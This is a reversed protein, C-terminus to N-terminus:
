SPVAIELDRVVQMASKAIDTLHEPEIATVAILVNGGNPLDLVVYRFQEGKAVANYIWLNNEDFHGVLPVVPAKPDDWWPCSGKWDPSIAIDIQQGSLSGVTFPGRNKTALGDRAALAGVIATATRGVGPQPGLGCDAAM